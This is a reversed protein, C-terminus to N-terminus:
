FEIVIISDVEVIKGDIDTGYDKNAFAHMISKDKIADPLCKELTRIKVACGHYYFDSALGNKDLYRAILVVHSNKNTMDNLLQRLTM